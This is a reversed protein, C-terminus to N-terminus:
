LEEDAKQALSLDRDIDMLVAFFGVLNSSVEEYEADNLEKNLMAEYAQKTVNKSV